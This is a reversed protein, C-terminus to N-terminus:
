PFSQEEVNDIRIEGRTGRIEESGGKKTIEM